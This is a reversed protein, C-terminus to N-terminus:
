DDPPTWGIAILAERTEDPIIVSVEGDFQQTDLVLVDLELRTLEGVESRLVFGRVGSSVDTGDLKIHGSTATPGELKIEARM